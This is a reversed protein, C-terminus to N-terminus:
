QLVDENDDINGCIDWKGTAILVFSSILQLIIKLLSLIECQQFYTWQGWTETKM